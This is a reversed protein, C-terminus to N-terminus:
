DFYAFENLNLLARCLEPLSREQLLELCARREEPEPARQFALAFAKEIQAEPLSGAEREIRAAFARAAEVALPGNLMSLAQPAVVSETRRACSTSNEPMDFTEMFPVRVTRKQILYIGRVHQEPAPSPYWGKTKEANDDLFAPNAQLIEAPLEPWVPAGGQREQLLGAVALLGDRLQEATLRRLNQRAIWRNESDNASADSLSSAQRFATSTVILRHLKKLSWDERVFEAALWDLLEPHTPRAGALGFDNSTEVLGRGFHTQWVRNVLVRATLPNEPSAIWEALTLRRGTTKPNTPKLVLAPNPDLASLFGPEVADREQKYDGQFLIRTAPPAGEADTMLLGHTFRRKQKNIEDINKSLEDHRPKEESTLAAIVDKDRPEVKRQLGEIKGKLEETQKEAPLELLEREEPNLKALREERLRKKVEGLLASRQEQLPKVQQEVSENHARISEQEVALDLPVDSAFKVGEFFARM